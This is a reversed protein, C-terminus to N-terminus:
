VCRLERAASSSASVMELGGASALTKAASLAADVPKLAAALFASWSLGKEDDFVADRRASDREAVFCMDEYALHQAFSAAHACASCLPRGLRRVQAFLDDTPLALALRLASTVEAGGVVASM